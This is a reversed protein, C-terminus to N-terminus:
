WGDSDHEGGTSSRPDAAGLRTDRLWQGVQVTDGKEIACEAGNLGSADFVDDDDDTIAGFKDLSLGAARRRRKVEWDGDDRVWMPHAAVAGRKEGGCGVDGGAADDNHGVVEGGGREETQEDAGGFVGSAQEDNIRLGVGYPVKVVRRLNAEGASADDRDAFLEFVEIRDISSGEEEVTEDKLGKARGGGCAVVFEAGSDLMESVVAQHVGDWGVTGEPAVDVCGLIEDKGAARELALWASVTCGAGFLSRESSFSLGLGRV